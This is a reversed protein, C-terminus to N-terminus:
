AASPLSREHTDRRAIRREATAATTVEPITGTDSHAAFGTQAWLDLLEQVQRLLLKKREPDREALANRYTQAFDGPIGNM